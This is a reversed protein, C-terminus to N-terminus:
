RWRVTRWYFLLSCTAAMLQWGSPEPARTAAAEASRASGFQTRWKALDAGNVAGEGTADGTLMSSEGALGFGRQWVLLDTGDVVGDENFDATLGGLSPRMLLQRGGFMDLTALLDNPALEILGVQYNFIDGSSISGVFDPHATGWAPKRVTWSEFSTTTNLFKIESHREHPPASAADAPLGASALAEDTSFAVVVPGASTKVAFPAYANYRHGQGDLLPSQYIVRSDLLGNWDAQTAGGNEVQFARVV